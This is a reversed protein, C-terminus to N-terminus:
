VALPASAPSAFLDALVKNSTVACHKLKSISAEECQQSMIPRVERCTLKAVFTDVWGCRRWMMDDAKNGTRPSIFNSSEHECSYWGFMLEFPLMHRSMKFSCHLGANVTEFTLQM